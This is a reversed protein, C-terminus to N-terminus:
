GHYIEKYRKIMKEVAHWGGSSSRQNVASQNIKLKNAIWTENQGFIKWYMVECQLATAKSVLTDLLFSETDLEQEFTDKTSVCFTRKEKKMEDLRKGSLRFAEGDSTALQKTEMTVEGIALSIRVDFLRNTFFAKQQSENGTVIKLESPNLSKISTKILLAVKLAMEPTHILCQFSDGRFL